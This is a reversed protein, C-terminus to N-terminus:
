GDRAHLCDCVGLINAKTVKLMWKGTIWGLKKSTETSRWNPQSHLLFQTYTTLACRSLTTAQCYYQLSGSGIVNKSFTIKSSSSRVDM